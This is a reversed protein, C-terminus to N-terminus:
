FPVEESQVRAAGSVAAVENETLAGNRKLDDQIEQRTTSFFQGTYDRFKFYLTGKFSGAKLLKNKEIEVQVIPRKFPAMGEQTPEDMWYMEALERRDHMENYLVGVLKAGYAIKATEAAHFFRGKGSLGQKTMEVTWVATYDLWDTTDQIWQFARKFKIREEGEGGVNHFSDGFVVVPRGTQDQTAKILREFAVTSNGSSSGAIVLRGSDAYEMIQDRGEEWLKKLGEDKFVRERPFTVDQIAFGSLVSHIKALATRRPDDLSLVIVCPEDSHALLGAELNTLLASKGVNPGGLLCYVEKSKSIGGLSDDWNSMGTMWGHSKDQPHAFDDYSERIFEISEAPKIVEEKLHIKDDLEAVADRILEAKSRSDEARFLLRNLKTAVEEISADEIAAIEARIDEEPVETVESLKKCLQGRVLPSEENLIFGVMEQVVKANSMGDEAMYTALQHDFASIPEHAFYNRLGEQLDGWARLYYDVDRDSPIVTEHFNLFMVTVKLGTKNRFKELYKMMSRMGTEDGNLVLNVETFGCERIVEVQLDTLASGCIAACCPHGAEMATLWDLYSEFIDLRKMSHKKAIHIGYLLLEKQILLCKDQSTAQYKPPYYEGAASYHQASQKDFDIYRRDFGVVKGRMDRLTITLRDSSIKDKNIGSAQIFEKNFGREEMTSLFLEWPVTGVGHALCIERTLGRKNRAYEQYEEHEEILDRLVEAATNYLREQRLEKLELETLEQKEHPVGFKDALYYVNDFLFGKGELPKQEYVHALHFIDYVVGCGFCKLFTEPVVGQRKLFGMSPTKDDHEPALCCVKGQKNFEVGKEELYEPLFSRIQTLLREFAPDRKM